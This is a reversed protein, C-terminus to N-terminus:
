PSEQRLAHVPADCSVGGADGSREALRRESGKSRNAVILYAFTGGGQGAQPAWADARAGVPTAHPMVPLVPGDVSAIPLAKGM